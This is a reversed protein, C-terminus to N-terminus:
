FVLRGGVYQGKTELRDLAQIQSECEKEWAESRKKNITKAESIAYKTNTVPLVDTLPYETKLIIHIDGLALKKNQAILEAIYVKFLDRLQKPKMDNRIRAQIIKVSHNM